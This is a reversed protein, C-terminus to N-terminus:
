TNNITSEPQELRETLASVRRNLNNLDQAGAALLASMERIAENQAASVERQPKFLYNVVRLMLQIPRRGLGHLKAFRAPVQTRPQNRLEAEVLYAAITNQRDIIDNLRESPTSARDHRGRELEGGDRLRAAEARVRRMLDEVDISPNNSLIM